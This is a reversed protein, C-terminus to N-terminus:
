VRIAVRGFDRRMTDAKRAEQSSPTSAKPINEETLIAQASSPTADDGTTPTILPPSAAHMPALV